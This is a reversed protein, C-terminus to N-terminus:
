HWRASVNMSNRLSKMIIVSTEGSDALTCGFDKFALKNIKIGMMVFGIKCEYFAMYKVSKFHKPAMPFFFIVRISSWLASNRAKFESM